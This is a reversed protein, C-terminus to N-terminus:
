GRAFTAIGPHGPDITYEPSRKTLDLMNVFDLFQWWSKVRAYTQAASWVCVKAQFVYLPM